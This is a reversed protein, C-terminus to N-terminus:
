VHKFPPSHITQMDDFSTVTRSKPVDSIDDISASHVWSIDLHIFKLARETAEECDGQLRNVSYVDVALKIITDAIICSLQSVTVYKLDIIGVLLCIFM